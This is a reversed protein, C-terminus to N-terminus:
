KPFNVFRDSSDDYFRRYRETLDNLYEATLTEEGHRNRRRVRALLNTTEDDLLVSLPQLNYDKVLFSFLSESKVRLLHFQLPTLNKDTLNKSMFTSVNSLLSREGIVLTGQPIEDLVTKSRTYYEDM